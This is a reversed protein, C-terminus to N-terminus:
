MGVPYRYEGPAIGFQLDNIVYCYKQDGILKAKDCAQCHMYGARDTEANYKIRFADNNDIIINEGKKYIGAVIGGFLERSTLNNNTSYTCFKGQNFQCKYQGAIAAGGGEPYSQSALCYPNSDCGTRDTDGYGHCTQTYTDTDTTYQSTPDDDDKLYRGYPVDMHIVYNKVLKKFKEQCASPVNNVTVVFSSKDGYTGDSTIDGKM